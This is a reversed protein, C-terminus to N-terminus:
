RKVKSITYMYKGSPGSPIIDDVVKWTYRCQGMVRSFERELRDFDVRLSTHEAGPSSPVIEIVISDTSEQIMRFKRVWDEFYFLHTFYEGDIRAGDRNTFLNVIRGNVHRVLPLGRGCSCTENTFTVTDGAEYRLLPMVYNRLQTVLVRCLSGEETVPRFNEDLLEAYQNFLNLHLGEHRHCEAALFGTERSAYVNFVPCRFVEEIMKRQEPFLTAAITIISRPRYLELARDKIFSALEYVSQPYSVIVGPRAKNLIRVYSSMDSDSLRFADLVETNKFCRLLFRDLRRESEAIDPLSGWLYFLLDGEDRGAWSFVLSRAAEMHDEYGRDQYVVVPEGTTGGSANKKSKGVMDSCLLDDLRERVTERTLIPFNRIDEFITEESYFIGRDRIIQSYYPINRDCHRVLKFLARAQRSRNVELSDFQAERM